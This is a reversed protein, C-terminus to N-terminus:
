MVVPTSYNIWNSAILSDFVAQQDGTLTILGNVPEGLTSMVEVMDEIGEASVSYRPTSMQDIKYNEGLYWDVVTVSDSTGLHSIILDTNNKAFWITKIDMVDLMLSDKDSSVTSYNNIVDKGTDGWFINLYNDNGKGGILYDDGGGGYLVDDGSSGEIFDGLQTGVLFMNDHRAVMVNSYDREEPLSSYVDSITSTSTNIGYASAIAASAVAGDDFVISEITSDGGVFWNELTISDSSSNVNIVLNNADKVLGGSIDAGNIGVLRLIDKGGGTNDIVDQGDGKAFVYIDDGRGGILRDNGLGGSLLDNGNGGSLRDDGGRGLLTDSGNFGFIDDRVDSGNIVSDADALDNIRSDYASSSILPMVVNFIDFIKQAPIVDGAQTVFQEVLFEGGLFFNKVTVHGASVANFDFLLDNGVKRVSAALLNADVGGEFVVADSTGGGEQVELQEGMSFFYRDSGAGGHTDDVGSYGYIDEPADSGFIMDNGLSGQLSQNPIPMETLMMSIQEKSYAKGDATRVTYDGSGVTSFYEDIVTIKNTDSDVIIALSAAMKHFSLREATVGNRFLISDHGEVAGIVNTWIDGNLVIVDDGFGGDVSSAVTNVVLTDNGDGGYLYPSYQGKNAVTELYDDGGFGYADYRSTTITDHGAGGAFPLKQDIRAGLLGTYEINVGNLYLDPVSSFGKNAMLDKLSIKTGDSFEIQEIGSGRPDNSHPLVIQVKHGSWNLDLTNYAMAAKAAQVANSFETEPTKLLDLSLGELLVTSQTLKLDGIAVGDPLIVTDLADLSYEEYGFTWIHKNDATWSDHDDPEPFDAIVDTGSFKDIVYTDKGNGGFFVNNGGGGILVDDGHHGVLTDNGDGGSMMTGGYWLDGHYSDLAYAVLLDDGSGAYFINGHEVDVRGSVNDGYVIKHTFTTLSTSVSFLKSIQTSGEPIGKYSNSSASNAPPYVWWGDPKGTVDNVEVITSGLAFDFGTNSVSPHFVAGSKPVFNSGTSHSPAVSIIASNEVRKSSSTDEFLVAVAPQKHHMSGVPAEVHGIVFESNWNKYSVWSSFANDGRSVWQFNGDGLSTYVDSTLRLFLDNQVSDIFQQQYSAYASTEQFASAELVQDFGKYTVGALVASWSQHLTYYDKLTVSEPGNRSTLVLDAGSQTVLVDSLKYDSGFILTNNSAGDAIFTDNEMGRSFYFTNDGAGGELVDNGSGGDLRDDGDGGYLHDDGYGGYLTDDGQGGVISDNGLGGYILDAGDKGDLQDDADTGTITDAGNSSVAPTSSVIKMVDAHTLVSGDAFSYKAIVSEFGGLITLSGGPYEVLLVKQLSFTLAEKFLVNDRTIGQGFRVVNGSIDSDAAVANNAQEVTLPTVTSAPVWVSDSIIDDGDNANVIYTDAGEGGDLLDDGGQGNLSDDGGEGNIVDALMTGYVLESKEFGTYKLSNESLKILEAYSLTAGDVFSFSSTSWAPMNALLVYSGLSDGVHLYQQGLSPTSIRVELSDVSFKGGFFIKNNGGSDEITDAGDGSNFLYVDNGTSASIFDNGQGGELVNDGMGGFLVDNDNGGFLTDDGGAGQLTDEGNGGDLYDNGEYLTTLGPFDGELFDAGEGGYLSDSGGGGWLSDNGAEGFILDDGHSEAAVDRGDGLLTDNEGGGFLTDNGGMGQIEDNGQGGYLVDNGHQAKPASTEDGFLFDEGDGGYLTDNDQGGMLYDSGDGGDLFDQGPLDDGGFFNDGWLTDNGTGGILIDNLASGILQDNGDGGDLYDAGKGLNGSYDLSDGALFDDGTGGFLTDNGDDGDLIDNGSDGSLYDNGFSGWLMDNGAGGYMVDDGGDEIDDNLGAKFTNLLMLGNNQLDTTFSWDADPIGGIEDGGLFDDGNGGALTDAGEGGLLMDRSSSGILLDDGKGADLWDQFNAGNKTSTSMIFDDLTTEVEAYLEDDGDSSILIDTGVGGVLTDDGVGGTLTDDGSGGDLRDDGGQRSTLEDDGGLGLLNDNGPTDFLRNERDPDAVGPMVIENGWGDLGVQIDAETVDQDEPKLDGEITTLNGFSRDPEIYDSLTIGFTGMVFNDIVIRDGDGYFMSLSKRDGGEDSLSFRVDGTESLWTNAGPGVQKGGHVAAENIKILGDGDIIHDLGDGKFFSYTDIGAGGELQDNGSGGTLTDAGGMGILRDDDRGGNLHDNGEGGELLDDGDGGYLYDNGSEGYLHDRALSGLLNDDAQSGFLISQRDIGENVYLTNYTTNGEEFLFTHKSLTILPFGLATDAGEAGAKLLLSLYLARDSVWASTINGTGTAQNYDNLTDIGQMGQYFSDNKLAFGNFNYAAYKYAVNSYMLSEIAGASLGVLSTVFTTPKDGAVWHNEMSLINKYMDDRSLESVRAPEKVPSSNIIANLASVVSDLALNEDLTSSSLIGAIAGLTLSPDFFHLLSAVALADSLNVISHAGGIDSLEDFSKYITGPVTGIKSVMDGPSVLNTIKEPSFKTGISTAGTEAVQLAALTNFLWETNNAAPVLATDFGPANYTFVSKVSDEALRSLVISLHGGLSHGAINFGSSSLKYGDGAIKVETTIGAPVITLGLPTYIGSSYSYATYAQGAPTTLEQYYNFLDISQWTAIGNFGIGIADAEVMDNFDGETGRISFTVEHTIRNEFIAAAFGNETNEQYSVLEYGKIFEKAQTDSFGGKKPDKLAAVVDVDALSKFLGYSAQALLSNLAYSQVNM